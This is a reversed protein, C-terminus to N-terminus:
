RIGRSRATVKNLLVHLHERKDEPSERMLQLIKDAAEPFRKLDVLLDAELLRADFSGDIGQRLLNIAEEPRRLNRLASAAV